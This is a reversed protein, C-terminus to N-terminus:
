LLVIVDSRKEIEETVPFRLAYSSRVLNEDLGLDDLRLGEANSYVGMRHLANVANPSAYEVRGSADLLLAGDGVRPADEGETEENDFPFEGRVIMRALRDFVEVYVRELEGPRRAVSLAAARTMGAVM